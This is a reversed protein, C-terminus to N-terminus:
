GNLAEPLKAALKGLIRRAEPHRELWSIETDLEAIEADLGNAQAVKEARNQKLKDVLSVYPPPPPPLVLDVEKKKKGDFVM